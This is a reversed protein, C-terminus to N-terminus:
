VGRSFGSGRSRSKFVRGVEEGVLRAIKRPDGNAGTVNINVTTEGGGTGAGNVTVPITRGDPLPVVAETGHLTMPYGTSPGSAIGGRAMGPADDGGFGFFGGIGDVVWMVADILPQIYDLLNDIMESGYTWIRSFADQIATWVGFIIEKAKKTDGSLVAVIARIVGVVTTLVIGIFTLVMKFGSMFAKALPKIYPWIWKIVKIVLAIIEGTAMAVSGVLEGIVSIAYVLFDIMGSDELYAVFDAWLDTLITIFEEVDSAGFAEMISNLASMFGDYIDTFATIITEVIGAEVFAGLLLGISDYVSGYFRFYFNMIETLTPIVDMGIGAADLEPLVIDNFAAKIDDIAIQLGAFIEGIIALDELWKRLSGGGEDFAATFLMLGGVVAFILGIIPLISSLMGMFLYKTAGLVKTLPMFVKTLLGTSAGVVAMSGSLKKTAESAEEAGEGVDGGVDGFTSSISKLAMDWKMYTTYLPGLAKMLIRHKDPLVTLIDSYQQLTKVTNVTDLAMGATKESAM